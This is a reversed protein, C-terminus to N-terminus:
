FSFKLGLQIERPTLTTSTIRGFNGSSLSTNPNSFHPNNFANFFEARFELPLEKYVYFSKFVSLDFNVVGPGRVAGTNANGFVYPDTPDAFCSTDFWKEVTGPYNLDSCTKNARNTTGTNLLNNKANVALPGGTRLTAIGNISWGGAILDLAGPAATMFRRNKGVPLEYTWSGSFSHRIDLAQNSSPAWNMADNWVWYISADDMSKAYTYSFLGQFGQAFRRSYKLQLSNYNSNADSVSASISQTLPSLSVWPRRPDLAGAAPTLPTNIDRRRYIHTGRTAVYAVEAVGNEGLRRQVGINWMMFMDPRFDAPMYLPQIGKVPDIQATLPTPTFDPLGDVSLKTFPRYPTSASFSYTQFLPFNRELFGATGGYNQTFYSIGFAGRIATKGQDPTYAFGFRPAFNKKFTDVNPGRNDPSATDFKGTSLNFNTQRNYGDVPHTFIDWRLGYNLSLARNVRWDDQVYLGGQIIRVDPRTNVLGRSLTSPYGLLFTAFEAGSTGNLSTMDRGFTFTGRPSQEPNTLTSRIRRLDMGFKITHSGRIWTTSDTIEYTNALREADTWGPAGFGSLGSISFNAIGSSAPFQALNGNKIGLQNNKDVGYDNGFDVTDFRSFGLRLENLLTPHIPVSYGVVANHNWSKAAPGGSMFQNAPSPSLLNRRVYSERLFLRGLKEFQYDGKIDFADVTQSDSLNEQYNSYPGLRSGPSNPQPWIGLVQQSVSDWRTLPVTNSAFPVVGAAASSSDPDYITDFGESSLLQGQQMAATPVNLIATRGSRLRLGQYDGFFFAKNRVIPGGFTGGFQNTKFPAKAASFFSRANMKQNRLYEFLSGHFDNGGSRLTLNVVAGGYTGFEASPNSTQVKFEEIAEIPPAINIFANLPEANSVGDVTYSTGSWPVGNVSSMISTRAGAGAAAETADGPGMPLSGPVLQVLQAFIRGNLPLSEVQQKEVTEGLDSSTSQVLVTNAKVEISESVTGVELRIDVRTPQAINVRNDTSIASRFGTAEVKVTYVGPPLSPALYNGVTDTELKAVIGTDQNTITVQAGPIGAGTPDLITGLLRGSIAQGYVLGAFLVVVIGATCVRQPQRYNNLEM